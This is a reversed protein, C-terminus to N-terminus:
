IFTEFTLLIFPAATLAPYTASNITDTGTGGAITLSAGTVLPAGGVALFADDGTGLMINGTGNITSNADMTIKDDGTGADVFIVNAAGNGIFATGEIDLVDSGSGLTIRAQNRVNATTAITVLDGEARTDVILRKNIQGSITVQDSKNTGTFLCDGEVTSFEDVSLDSGFNAFLSSTFVLNRGVSSSELQLTSLGVKNGILLPSILRLDGNITSPNTAGGVIIENRGNGGFFTLNKPTALSGVTTGQVGVFNVQYVNVNGKFESNLIDLTDDIGGNASIVSDKTVTISTVDINDEGAGGYVLMLGGVTSGAVAAKNITLNNNGACMNICLNGGTTFGNLAVDIEDDANTTVVNVHNVNAFPAGTVQTAGDYVDVTTGSTYDILLVDGPNTVSGRVNLTKTAVVYTATVAPTCRIELSEVHPRFSVRNNM